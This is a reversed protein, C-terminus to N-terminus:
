VESFHVRKPLGQPLEELAIKSPRIEFSNEINWIDIRRKKM